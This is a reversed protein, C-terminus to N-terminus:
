GRRPVGRVGNVVHRPDGGSLVTRLNDLGEEIMRDRAEVTSGSLHPSLLVNPVDAWAHGPGLPEDTFVDLAAGLLRGSRLQDRLHAEDLVPGRSSNVVVARRPLLELRRADILGRTGPLLPVHLTLVDARACLEDLEVQRSGTAALTAEDVPVADFCLIEAPEFGQLRRAVGRGIAGFGVIGIVRGALDFIGDEAAQVMRWNGARLEQHEFWARRLMALMAMVAWEAVSAANAGPANAVPIGLQAAADVDIGQFGATPQFVARCRAAAGLADADLRLEGTWDGFVYDATPLAAGVAAPSRDDIVQWSHHPMAPGLRDYTQRVVAAPSLCLVTPSQM